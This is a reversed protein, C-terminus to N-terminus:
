GQAAQKERERAAEATPTRRRQNPKKKEGAAALFGELLWALGQEQM